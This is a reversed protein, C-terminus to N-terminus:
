RTSRPSRRGCRRTRRRGPSSRLGTRGAPPRDARRRHRGPGGARRRPAPARPPRGAAPRAAPQHGPDLGARGRGAPGPLAPPGGPRVRHDAARGPPVPDRGPALARAGDAEDPGLPGGPGDLVVPRRLARGRRVVPARDRRGRLGRRELQVPAAAHRSGAPRAARRQPRHAVADLPQEDGFEWPRTAGTPEDAAGTRTTTTTAAAARRRAPRVGPAARDRRAPAAGEPDAAPRRTRARPLGPARLERELERLAASTSPRAAAWSASWRRSTSTTWPRARSAGPVAPRDAGRPRRPRRRREVAEGYGLPESGRMRRGARGLGARAAARAPQRAAAGDARGPGPRRAGRQM